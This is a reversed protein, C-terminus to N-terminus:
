RIRGRTNREALGECTCECDCAGCLSVTCTVTDFATFAVPPADADDDLGELYVLTADSDRAIGADTGDGYWNTACASWWMIVM